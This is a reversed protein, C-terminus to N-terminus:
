VSIGAIGDVPVSLIVAQAPTEAGFSENIADMITQRKEASTVIVVVEKDSQMGIGLLKVVDNSSTQTAKIITGGRAGAVKAVSVVEASVGPSVVTLLMNYNTHIMKEVGENENGLPVTFAIGYGAKELNLNEGIDTLATDVLIGPAIAFVITKEITGVGLLALFDSGQTGEADCSFQLFFNHKNLMAETKGGDARNVVTILMKANNSNM